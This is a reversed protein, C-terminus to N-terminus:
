WGLQRLRADGIGFHHGVEHVVTRRVQDVVDDESPCLACIARRYITIRDPLVGAYHTTRRTLPIGQYLGLLGRPGPEHQVVVAVNSMLEGLEEPLGDLAEAVMEEFREPEVDVM